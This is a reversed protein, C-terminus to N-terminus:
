RSPPLKDYWEQANAKTIRATKLPKKNPVEEGALIKLAVEIAEKGCTPYLFTAALEGDMVAKVGEDRLADVGIFIM